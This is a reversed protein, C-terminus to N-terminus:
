PRFRLRREAHAEIDAQEFHMAPQENRIWLMAEDAKHPSDPDISQGGPIANFARPGEPTMEVVLRQSAGSGFSFRETNWLGFNGPDVNGSDGHRPFGEPYEGHEPVTLEVRQSHPRTVSLM